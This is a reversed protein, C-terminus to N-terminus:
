NWPAEMFNEGLLEAAKKCIVIGALQNSGWPGRWMDSCFRAIARWSYDEEFRLQRIMKAAERDLGIHERFLQYTKNAGNAM